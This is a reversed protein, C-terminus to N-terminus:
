SRPHDGYFIAKKGTGDANMVLVKNGESFAIKSGDPSWSPYSEWDAGSTLQRKNSGDSDMTWIDHQHEWAIKLGDRSIAPKADYRGDGAPTLATIGTGDSKMRYIDYNEATHRDSAFVIFPQAAAAAAPTSLTPLASPAVIVGTLALVLASAIPVLRERFARPM